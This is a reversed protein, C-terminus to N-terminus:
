IQGNRNGEKFGILARYEPSDQLPYRHENEAKAMRELDRARRYEAHERLTNRAVRADHDAKDAPNPVGFMCREAAALRDRYFAETAPDGVPPPAPPNREVLGTSSRDPIAAQAGGCLREILENAVVESCPACWREVDAAITGNSMWTKSKRSFWQPPINRAPPIRWLVDSNAKFYRYSHSAFEIKRKFGGSADVIPIEDDDPTPAPRFKEPPASRLTQYAKIQEATWQAPQPLKIGVCETSCALNILAQVESESVPPYMEIGVPCAARMWDMDSVRAFYATGVHLGDDKPDRKVKWIIDEGNRRFYAFKDSTM